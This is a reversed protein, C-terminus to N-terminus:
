IAGDDKFKKEIIDASVMRGTWNFFGAQMHMWKHERYRTELSDLVDCDERSWAHDPKLRSGAFHGGWRNQAPKQHTEDPSPWRTKGNDKWKGGGVGGGGGGGSSNPNGNKSRKKSKAKEQASSENNDDAAAADFLGAFDEFAGGDGDNRGKEKEKGGKGQGEGSEGESEGDVEKRLEKFRNQVDNKSAGVELAIEKWSHNQGKMERIKADQAATWGKEPKRGTSKKEEAQAAKGKPSPNPSTAKKSPEPNADKKEKEKGHDGKDNEKEKEKEEGNPNSVKHDDEDPIDEVTAKKPKRQARVSMNSGESSTVSILSGGLIWNSFSLGVRTDKPMHQHRPPRM